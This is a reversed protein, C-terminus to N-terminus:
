EDVSKRNTPINLTTGTIDEGTITMSSYADTSLAKVKFTFKNGEDETISAIKVRILVIDGVKHEMFDEKPSPM